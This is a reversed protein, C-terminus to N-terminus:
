RCILKFVHQVSVIISVFTINDVRVTQLAVLIAVEPVAYQWWYIALIAVLRVNELRYRYQRGYWTFTVVGVPADTTIQPEETWNKRQDFGGVEKRQVDLSGLWTLFCHLKGLTLARHPM